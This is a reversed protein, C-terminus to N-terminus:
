PPAPTAWTMGLHIDTALKPCLKRLATMQRPSTDMGVLVGIPTKALRVWRDVTTIFSDLERLLPRHEPRLVRELGDFCMVIRNLLGNHESLTILFMLIDLREQDTTVRRTVGAAELMAQDTPALHSATFWRITANFFQIAPEFHGRNESIRFRLEWLARYVDHFIYHSQDVMGHLPEDIIFTPVAALAWLFEWSYTPPPFWKPLQLRAEEPVKATAIRGTFNTLITQDVWDRASDSIIDEVTDPRFSSWEESLYKRYWGLRDHATVGPVVLMPLRKGEDHFRLSWKIVPEVPPTPLPEEIHRRLTKARPPDGEDPVLRLRPAKSVSNM